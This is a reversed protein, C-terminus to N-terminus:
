LASYLMDATFFPDHSGYVQYKDITTANGSVDQTVADWGLAVNNSGSLSISTVVPPNPKAPTYSLSCYTVNLKPRNAATTGESSTFFVANSTAASYNQM